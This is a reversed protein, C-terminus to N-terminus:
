LRIEKFVSVVAAASILFILIGGTINKNKFQWIGFSFAKISFILVVAAAILVYIM